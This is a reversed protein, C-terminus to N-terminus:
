MMYVATAVVATSVALSSAGALNSVVGPCTYTLYGDGFYINAKTTFMSATIETDLPIKGHSGKQTGANWCVKLSSPPGGSFKSWNTCCSSDAYCDSAASCKAYQAM